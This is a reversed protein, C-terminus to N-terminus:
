AIRAGLQRAFQGAFQMLQVEDLVVGRLSQTGGLSTINAGRLDLHEASETSLTLTQITSGRLSLRAIKSGTLDLEEIVCADFSVDAARTGRLGVLGLKCQEFAVTKLDAGGLDLVGLRSEVIETNRIGLDIGRVRTGSLGSLRSDTVRAGSLDVDSVLVGSLESEAITAGALSRGELSGGAVSVYDHYGDRQLSEASTDTLDSLLVRPKAAETKTSKVM